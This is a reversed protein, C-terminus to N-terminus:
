ALKLPGEHWLSTALKRDATNLIGLEVTRLSAALRQYKRLAPEVDQQQKQHFLRGKRKAIAKRALAIADRLIAPTKPTSAFEILAPWPDKHNNRRAVCLTAEFDTNCCYSVISAAAVVDRAAAAEGGDDDRPGRKSVVLAIAVLKATGVAHPKIEATIDDLGDWPTEELALSARLLRDDAYNSGFDKLELSVADDDDDNQIKKKKPAFGYRYVFDAVSDAYDQFLEAGARIRRTSTGVVYEGSEFFVVNKPKGYNLLCAFPVISMGFWPNAHSLAIACKKAYGPDRSEKRLRERKAAVVRELETGKLFEVAKKPWAFPCAAPRLVASLPGKLKEVLSKQSDGGRAEACICARKPIVFLLENEGITQTAICGLGAVGRAM